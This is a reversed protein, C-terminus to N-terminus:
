DQRGMQIYDVFQDALDLVRSVRTEGVNLREVAVPVVEVFAIASELAMGRIYQENNPLGMEM